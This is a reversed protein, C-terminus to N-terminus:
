RTNSPCCQGSLRTICTLFSRDPFGKLPRVPWEGRLLYQGGRLSLDAAQADGGDVPVDPGQKLAVPEGSNRHRTFRKAVLDGALRMVVVEAAIAAALDELQFAAIETKTGFERAAKADGSM